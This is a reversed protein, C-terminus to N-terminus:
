CQPQDHSDGRLAGLLHGTPAVRSTAVRSTASCGCCAALAVSSCTLNWSSFPQGTPADEWPQSLLRELLGLAAGRPFRAAAASGLPLEPSGLPLPLQPPQQPNAPPRAVGATGGTPAV